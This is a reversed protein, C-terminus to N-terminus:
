QQGLYPLTVQKTPNRTLGLKPLCQRTEQRWTLPTACPLSWGQQTRNAEDDETTLPTTTTRVGVGGLAVQHRNILIFMAQGYRFGLFM